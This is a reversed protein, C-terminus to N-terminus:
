VKNESINAFCAIAKFCRWWGRAVLIYVQEGEGRRRGRRSCKKASNYSPTIGAQKCTRRPDRSYAHDGEEVTKGREDARSFGCVFLSRNGAAPRGKKREEKKSGKIMLWSKVINRVYSSLVIDDQLIDIDSFSINRQIRLKQKFTGAVTSVCLM